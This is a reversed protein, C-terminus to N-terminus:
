SYSRLTSYFHFFAAKEPMVANNLRLLHGFFSPRKLSLTYRSERGTQLENKVDLPPGTRPSNASWPPHNEARAGPRDCSEAQQPAHRAAECIVSLRLADLM